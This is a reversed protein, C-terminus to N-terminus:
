KDYTKGDTEVAYLEVGMTAAAARDGVSLGLTEPDVQILKGNFNTWFWQLIHTHGIGELVGGEPVEKFASKISDISMGGIKGQAREAATPIKGPTIETYYHKGDKCYHITLQENGAVFDKSKEGAGARQYVAWDDHIQLPIAWWGKNVKGAANLADKGRSWSAWGAVKLDNTAADKASVYSDYPDGPALGNVDWRNNSDNGVM